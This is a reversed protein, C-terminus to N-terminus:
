ALFRLISTGCRSQIRRRLEKHWVEDGLPAPDCHVVNLGTLDDGPSAKRVEATPGNEGLPNYIVLNYM